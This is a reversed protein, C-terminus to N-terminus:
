HRFTRWGSIFMSLGLEEARKFVEDDRVSGGPQIIAKIGAKAAAEVGDPFPFFADSGMVAGKAKEKAQNTAFDVAFVRSCFGMGIGVAEGDKIIAVANSKSLCAVKWALLMDKWLEDRRPGIWTGKDPNPLPPLIDQQVLFGSWTSTIQWPLVKGGKWKLIRLSPKDKKLFELAEDEGDPVLLVETFHQSVALATEMDLPRSFGVVGGFASLPDCRFAKEYAEKLTSGYAMGCPTTHKIVLAGPGDQLLAAGRMACDLDLINNYSLPKGGLQEWPLKKMPPLYLAAEQHPNEGYRLDQEKKLPITLEEKMEPEVGLESSLGEVIAGDYAATHAFAKLALSQRTLLTVNGEADLEELIQEYDLPDTLIIVHPYNKAGARILTVGGIDINELLEDINAGRQAVEQFPYLNCVVMDILPIKFTEIDRLDGDVHRRALIGGSIFPHLTKVRGGLIHPFGTLDSVEIVNIGAEQLKKATGSSSVIEWGREILKKAFDEVGQKDFVSILARKTATM